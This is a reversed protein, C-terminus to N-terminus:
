VWDVKSPVNIRDRQRYTPKSEVINSIAHKGRQGRYLEHRTTRTRKKKGRSTIRISIIQYFHYSKTTRSLIERRSMYFTYFFTGTHFVYPRKLINLNRRLSFLVDWIFMNILFYDFLESINKCAMLEQKTFLQYHESFNICNKELSM